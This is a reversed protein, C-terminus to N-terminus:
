DYYIVSNTKHQVARNKKVCLVLDSDLTKTDNNQPKSKVQSCVLVVNNKEDLYEKLWKSYESYIDTM